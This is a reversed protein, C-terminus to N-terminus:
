EENGWLKNGGLHGVSKHKKKNVLQMKGPVQHHHWSLGDIYARENMIQNLQKETFLETPVNGKIIENKLARTCAIFQKKDRASFLNQDLKTTFKLDEGSFIPFGLIDFEVAM